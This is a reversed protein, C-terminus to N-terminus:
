KPTTLHLGDAVLSLSRGALDEDKAFHRIVHRGIPLHADPNMGGADIGAVHLLPLVGEAYPHWKRAYNRVAIPGNDDVTHTM